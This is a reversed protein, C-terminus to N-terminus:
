GDSHFDERDNRGASHCEYWGGDDMFRARVSEIEEANRQSGPYPFKEVRERFLNAHSALAVCILRYENETLTVTRSNM